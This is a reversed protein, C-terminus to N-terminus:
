FSTRSLTRTPSYARKPSQIPVGEKIEEERQKPIPLNSDPGALSLLVDHSSRRKMKTSTASPAAYSSPPTSAVSISGSAMHNPYTYDDSLEPAYPRPGSRVINELSNLQAQQQRITHKLTSM